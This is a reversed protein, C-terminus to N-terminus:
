GDCETDESGSGLTEEDWFHDDDSPSLTGSSFSSSSGVAWDDLEHGFKTNLSM